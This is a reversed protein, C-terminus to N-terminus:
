IRRGARLYADPNRATGNRRVEFHLHPGTSRGTSGVKGIIEGASIVQGPKVLIRSLHAYRSTLGQGHDIEVVKGYGGRRSAGIVKGAGAAFVETGRSARFDLGQHMAPRGLFPDMRPGFRSSVSAQSGVPRRIPLRNIIQGIDTLHALTLEVAEIRTEFAYVAAKTGSLPILPGGLGTEDDSAPEPAPVSIGLARPVSALEDRKGEVAKEIRDLVGFQRIALVDLQTNALDVRAAAREPPETKAVQIEARVSHAFGDLPHNRVVQGDLLRPKGFRLVPVSRPVLDGSSVDLKLGGNALDDLMQALRDHRALLSGVRAEVDQLAQAITEDSGAESIGLRLDGAPKKRSAIDLRDSKTAVEVIAQPVMVPQPAPARAQQPLGTLAFIALGTICAASM